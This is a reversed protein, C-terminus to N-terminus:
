ASRRRCRASAARALLEGDDGLGIRLAVAHHEPVLDRGQHRVVIRVHGPVLFQDIRHGHAHHALRLGDVGHHRGVQVGVDQGVEGGREGSREADRGGAVDIGLAAARRHELRDVARREVDGALADGIRDGAEPGARHHQLMEALLGGGLRSIRATSCTQAAPMMVGSRPPLAVVASTVRATHSATRPMFRQHVFASDASSCPRSSCARASTGARASRAAAVVAARSTGGSVMASKWRMPMRRMMWGRRNPPNCSRKESNERM